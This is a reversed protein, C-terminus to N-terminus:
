ELDFRLGTMELLYHSFEGRYYDLADAANNHYFDSDADDILDFITFTENDEGVIKGDIWVLGSTIAELDETYHHIDIEGSIYEGDGLDVYISGSKDRLKNLAEEAFEILKVDGLIEHLDATFKFVDYNMHSCLSIVKDSPYNIAKLKKLVNKINSM